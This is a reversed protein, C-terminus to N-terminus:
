ATLMDPITHQQVQWGRTQLLPLLVFVYSLASLDNFVMADHLTYFNQTAKQAHGKGGDVYKKLFSRLHHIGPNDSVPLDNVKFSCFVDMSIRARSFLVNLRREGGERVLAGMLLRVKGQEDPGYGISIVVHDREDGQLHELTRILVGNTSVSAQELLMDFYPDQAAAHSLAKEIEDAQQTSLAVLLISEQGNEVMMRRVHSVVQQAEIVNRGDVYQGQVQHVRIPNVSDEDPAPVTQLKGDYFHKNSWDILKQYRSRYHWNLPRVTRTEAVWDLLTEPMHDQDSKSMFYASPTMQMPDGSVISQTTMMMCPIASELPIIGAEDFVILDFTRLGFFAEILAQPTCITVPSLTELVSLMGQATLERLATFRQKRQMCKRLMRHAFVLKRRKARLDPKLAGSSMSIMSTQRKWGQQQRARIYAANARLWEDMGQQMQMTMVGLTAGTVQGVPGAMALRRQLAHDLVTAEAALWNGPFRKLFNFVPTANRYLHDLMPAARCIVAINQKVVSLRM